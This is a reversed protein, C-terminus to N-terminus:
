TTTSFLPSAARSASAVSGRVQGSGARGRADRIAFRMQVELGGGSRQALTLADSSTRMLALGLGLGESTGGGRLGPGRDAVLVSIEGVTVAALVEIEGDAAAYAHEVVNTLAESTALRIRELEDGSAGAREAVVALEERAASISVPEAPYFRHFAGPPSASTM